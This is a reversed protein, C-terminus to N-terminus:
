DAEDSSQCENGANIASGHRPCRVPLPESISATPQYQVLTLRHRGAPGLGESVDLKKLDPRAGLEALDDEWMLLLFPAKLKGAEAAYAPIHRRAYFMAGYDADRYFVLPQNSSIQNVRIMFPKLTLESAISPFFTNKIITSVVLSTLSIAAFTFLWSRRFLAWALASVAALLLVLCVGTLAPTGSLLALAWAVKNSRTLFVLPAPDILGNQAAYYSALGCTAAISVAAFAYTLWRAVSADRSTNEGLRQWWAGCLLAFAPYVPLIYVGRKGLSASFFILVSFLWVLHFLLREEELRRRRHYIFVAIAPIFFSWPLSNELFVLLYYYIPQYHGYSGTATRLNEDVIQRLFFAPGGRWLAAAYWLGATVLFVLGGLFPHLKQLFGFDRRFCLYVFFIFGPLVLGVPGKTLTALALLLPLGLAKLLGFDREHYLFDFYWCAATVFFALTMDVQTETGAHWWESCTVLVIGAVIGANQGWLRAAVRYTVLVGTAALLASPLRLTFEDVRGFLHSMLLALWHFLPPKFPIYDGNVAPLIWNGSSYMEWVVLGERPEGRTYFPLESLGFFLLIFCFGGLIAIDRMWTANSSSLDVAAATRVTQTTSTNKM